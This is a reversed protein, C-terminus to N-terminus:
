VVEMEVTFSLFLVGSEPFIRVFKGRQFVDNLLPFGCKTKFGMPLRLLYDYYSTTFMVM